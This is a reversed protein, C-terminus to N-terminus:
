YLLPQWTRHPTPSVERLSMVHEETYLVVNQDLRVVPTQTVDHPMIALNSLWENNHIAVDDPHASGLM